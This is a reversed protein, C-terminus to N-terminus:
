FFEFDERWDCEGSKNATLILFISKKNNRNIFFPKELVFMEIFSNYIIQLKNEYVCM